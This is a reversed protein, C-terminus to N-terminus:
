LDLFMSPNLASTVKLEVNDQELIVQYKLMRSASLWHNIEMKTRFCNYAHTACLCHDKTGSDIKKAEQILSVTAAVARLCTPWGKSVNDLQKSFYGVAQKWSGLKQTLVGLVSHLWEHLFLEFHKM